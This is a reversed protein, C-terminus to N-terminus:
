DFSIRLFALYEEGGDEEDSAEWVIFVQMDEDGSFVTKVSILITKKVDDGPDEESLERDDGQAELMLTAIQM